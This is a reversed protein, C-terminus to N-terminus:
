SCYDCFKRPLFLEEWTGLGWRSPFPCGQGWGVGEHCATMRGQERTSFDNTSSSTGLGTSNTQQPAAETVASHGCHTVTRIWSWWRLSRIHCCLPQCHRSCHPITHNKIDTLSHFGPVRTGSFGPLGDIKLGTFGPKHTKLFGPRVPKTKAIMTTWSALELKWNLTM